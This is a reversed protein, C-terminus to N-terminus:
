THTQRDTQKHSLRQTHYVFDNDDIEQARREDRKQAMIESQIGKQKSKADLFPIFPSFSLNFATTPWM